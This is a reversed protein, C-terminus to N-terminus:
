RRATISKFRLRTDYTILRTIGTALLVEPQQELAFRIATEPHKISLM